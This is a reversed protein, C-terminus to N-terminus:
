EESMRPNAPRGSARVGGCVGTGARACACMRVVSARALHARALMRGGVRARAGAGVRAVGLCHQPCEPLLPPCRAARAWHTPPVVPYGGAGAKVWAGAPPSVVPQARGVRGRCASGVRRSASVIPPACGACRRRYLPTVAVHCAWECVRGRGRAAGGQARGEGVCRRERVRLALTGCRARAGVGIRQSGVGGLAGFAGSRCAAGGM